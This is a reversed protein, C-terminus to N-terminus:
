WTMGPPLPTCLRRLRKRMASIREQHRAAGIKNQMQLPDTRLNYLEEEGTGYHTFTFKETQLLCYPPVSLNVQKQEILHGTRVKAVDGRLFPLLSTGDPAPMSTGALDAFTPALDINAALTPTEGTSGIADYRVVYPVRTAEEYPRNKGSLRHEGWFFGNDSTFVVMTNDLMNRASLTDIFDGVWEDVSLLTEYQHERFQDLQAQMEADLTRLGRVWAPKDAVDQESYSEPRWPPLNDFALEHQPEAIAASHPAVPTWELFWPRDDADTIFDHAKQGLVDTLYDAQTHGYTALVGNENLTYDYYSSGDSTVVEWNDWGPPVYSASERAGQGGYGNMYKGVLGTRYGAEHLVTAVTERDDFSNFAGYPDDNHNGYTGNTHAYQGTLIQARSPCCLPTVVHAHSFTVGHAVLDTQVREMAWTTDWRQDDTVILLINPREPVPEARLSPEFSLSGVILSVLFIARKV